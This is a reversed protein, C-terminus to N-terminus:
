SRLKRYTILECLGNNSKAFELSGFNNTKSSGSNGVSVTSNREDRSSSRRNGTDGDTPQTDVNNRDTSVSGDGNAVDNDNGGSRILVAAVILVLM